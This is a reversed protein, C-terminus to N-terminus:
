RKVIKLTKVEGGAYLLKLEYIGQPYQEFDITADSKDNQNPYIHMLKGTIDYLEITEMDKEKEDTWKLYLQSELPNPYYSIDSYEESAVLQKEDVVTSSPILHHRQHHRAALYIMSRKKQNGAGDYDFAISTPANAGGGPPAVKSAYITGSATTGDKFLIHLEVLGEDTSDWTITTTKQEPSDAQGGTVIWHIADIKAIDYGSMKYITNEDQCVFLCEAYLIDKDFKFEGLNSEDLQCTMKNWSFLLTSQNKSVFITRNVTTGDVLTLHVKIQGGTTDDWTVMTSKENPTDALGGIIEWAVVEVTSMDDGNLYYTVKSNKCVRLYQSTPINDDFRIQNVRDDDAQCGTKDWSLILNSTVKKVCISKYIQSEDNFVIHIKINGLENGDWKIMTAKETPYVAEGGEVTWDITHINEIADGSITFTVNSDRCVKLCPTNENMLEFLISSNNNDIPQCGTSDWSLKLPNQATLLGTVFLLMYIYLQKNKKKNLQNQAM